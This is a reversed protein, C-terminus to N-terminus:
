RKFLIIIPEDFIVIKSGGPSWLNGNFNAGGNGSTSSGGSGAYNCGCGCVNEASQSFGAKVNAMNAKEVNFQNLKNKLKKKM